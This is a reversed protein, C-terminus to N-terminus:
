FAGDLEDGRAFESGKSEEIEDEWPCRNLFTQPHPTLSPSSRAKWEKKHHELSKMLAPFKAATFDKSDWHKRLAKCAGPKNVKRHKPYETWFMAFLADCEAYPDPKEIPATGDIFDQQMAYSGWDM